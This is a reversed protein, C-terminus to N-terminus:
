ATHRNISESKPRESLMMLGRADEIQEVALLGHERELDALVNGHGIKPQAEREDALVVCRLKSCRGTM